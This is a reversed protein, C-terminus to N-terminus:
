SDYQMRVIKHEEFADCGNVQVIFMNLHINSAPRPRSALIVIPRAGRQVVFLSYKLQFEMYDPSVSLTNALFFSFFLMQQITTNPM